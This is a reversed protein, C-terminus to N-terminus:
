VKKLCKKFIEKKKDVFTTKARGSYKNEDEDNDRRSVNKSPKKKWGLYYYLSSAAGHFNWCASVKHFKIKRRKM